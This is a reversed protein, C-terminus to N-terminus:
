SLDQSEIISTAEVKKTKIKESLKELLSSIDGSEILATYAQQDLINELTQNLLTQFDNTVYDSLSNSFNELKKNHKIILSKNRNKYQDILEKLVNLQENQIQITTASQRNIEKAERMRLSIGDMLFNLGNQITDLKNDKIIKELRSMTKQDIFLQKKVRNENKNKLNFKFIRFDKKLKEFTTKSIAIAVKSFSQFNEIVDSHEPFHNFGSSDSIYQVLENQSFYPAIDERSEIKETLFQKKLEEEKNLWAQLSMVKNAM